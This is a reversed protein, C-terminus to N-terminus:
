WPDWEEPNLEDKKEDELKKESSDLNIPHTNSIDDFQQPEIELRTPEDDILIADEGIVVEKFASILSLFNFFEEKNMQVKVYNENERIGIKIIKVEGSIEVSTIEINEDRKRLLIRWSTERIKEIEM